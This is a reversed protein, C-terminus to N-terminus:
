KFVEACTLAHFTVNVNIRLQQGLTTDVIMHEKTHIWLYTRLEALVLIFIIFWGLLSM